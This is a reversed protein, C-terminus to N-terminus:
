GEADQSVAWGDDAFMTARQTPPVVMSATAGGPLNPCYKSPYQLENRPEGVWEFHMGDSSTFNGGWAFGHKRFIRVIGCDMKPVHGQANTLTNMDIPQGWSHRSLFGLNGTVRNFRPYFCGGYSNTNALDIGGALGSVAVETLAAQLDAVIAVNCHSRVGVDSFRVYVIHDATWQPDIVVGSASLQYAFEGLAVKTAALGITSDPDRPWWSRRVRVRAGDFDQNDILGEGLLAADLADRNFGGYVLVSTIMAKGLLDAQEPSMVIETGGVAADDAILGITFSVISGDAAVLDIVDGALAGRRTATQLSMVVRGQGLVAAVPSGMVIAVVDVPLATVSMPFQWLGNGDGAVQVIGGARRVATMGISFGRGLSAGAGAAAAARQTAAIVPAGVVGVASVSVLDNAHVVTVRLAPEIATAAGGVFSM